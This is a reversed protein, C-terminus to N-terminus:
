LSMPVVVLSASPNKAKLQFGSMSPCYETYAENPPELEYQGDCATVANATSGAGGVGLGLGIASVLEGCNSIYKAADVAAIIMAMAKTATRNSLFRGYIIELWGKEKKLENYLLM